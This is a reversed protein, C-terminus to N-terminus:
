FVHGLGSCCFSHVSFSCSLSSRASKTVYLESMQYPIRVPTTDMLCLIVSSSNFGCALSVLMETTKESSSFDLFMYFRYMNLPNVQGTQLGAYVQNGERSILLYTNKLLKSLILTKVILNLATM